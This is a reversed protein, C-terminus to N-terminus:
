LIAVLELQFDVRMLPSFVKVLEFNQDDKYFCGYLNGGYNDVAHRAIKRGKYHKQVAKCSNSSSLDIASEHLKYIDSHSMSKVQNLTLLM